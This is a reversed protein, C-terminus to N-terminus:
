SITVCRPALICGLDRSAFKYRSNGLSLALPRRVLLCTSVGWLSTNPAGPFPSNTSCSVAWMELESVIKAQTGLDPSMAADNRVKARHALILALANSLQHCIGWKQLLPRPSAAIPCCWSRSFSAGQAGTRDVARACHRTGWLVYPCKWPM